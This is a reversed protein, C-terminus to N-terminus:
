FQFYIFPSYHMSSIRFAVITLCLLGVATYSPLRLRSQTNELYKGTVFNKPFFLTFLGCLLAIKNFNTYVYRFEPPITWENSFLLRETFQLAHGISDARFLIWGFCVLTFTLIQWLMRNRKHTRLGFLRELTLMLGNFAGWVVFTWNAGHWIGTCLFVIWLNAYTRFSGCRSGGLPIYVYDRFWSSLTIHWRRWFDTFSTASYPRLFNEPFTFGLIRGLGIAMDSYASFDFYIQFTYALAGLLAMSSPLENTPMTFATDAMVACADALIVKKCLGFM